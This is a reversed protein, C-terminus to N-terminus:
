VTLENEIALRILASRNSVGLKVMLRSRYTDITKRSLSLQQAIDASSSGAVISRLVERERASLREYASQSRSFDSSGETSMASVSPSVFQHGTSVTKIAQILEIGAAAKVVYGRLGARLARYVHQSTQCASLAVIRMLPFESLIRRAVEIGNLDPLVLDMVIVDPQLQRAGVIAEEGTAVSGVVKMGKVREFLALLGERVICHDDVLLVRLAPVISAGNM